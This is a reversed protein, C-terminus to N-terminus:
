YYTYKTFWTSYNNSETDVFILPYFVMWESGNSTLSVSGDYLYNDVFSSPYFSYFDVYIYTLTVPKGFAAKFENAYYLANKALLNRNSKEADLYNSFFSNDIYAFVMLSGDSYTDVKFEKMYIPFGNLVQYKYNNNLYAAYDDTTMTNSVVKVENSFVYDSDIGNEVVCVAYVVIQNTLYGQITLGKSDYSYFEYGGIANKLQVWEGDNIKEFLNYVKAGTDEWKLLIDTANVATALVYSVAKPKYSTTQVFNTLTLSQTKDMNKFNNIPIAFGLNEGELIGANTIGIVKGYEDILIGGSSGPSIPATIQIENLRISSIIGNSLTNMLGKPSGITYITQGRLLNDSSGMAIVPTNTQSISLAAIDIDKDYGIITVEGKYYTGDDFEIEIRKANEIVHYNTGIKGKDYVFGSGTSLNGETDEVYIKVVSKSLLGIQESSLKGVSSINQTGKYLVFNEYINKFILLSQEITANGKPNVNNNSGNIIKSNYAKYISDKAYSSINMDDSFRFSSATLNTGTLEIAKVMMTALQERTLKVTTGFKGNGIGSTIGVTAGKLVYVDNTDVFSIKPDVTIEEGMITEYLTVALYIFDKRTITDQYTRFIEKELISYDVLVELDSQAWVSPTGNWKLDFSEAYSPVLSMIMFVLLVAILKRMM